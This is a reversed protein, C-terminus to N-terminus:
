RPPKAATRVGEPYGRGDASVLEAYFGWDSGANEIKLLLENWGKDLRLRVLEQAPKAGQRTFREFRLERNFWVKCADDAGLELMVRQRQESFIWCAAYAAAPKDTGCVELLNVFDAGSEHSTWRLAGSAGDGYVASIVVGDKEPPYARQYARHRPDFFPGLVQWARIFRPDTAIQARNFRYRVDRPVACEDMLAGVAAVPDPVSLAKQLDLAAGLFALARPHGPVQKLMARYWEMRRAPDPELPVIEEFFRTGARTAGLELVHKQAQALARRLDYPLHEVVPQKPTFAHSAYTEAPPLTHSKAGTKVPADVWECRTQEGGEPVGDDFLVYEKGATRIATRDWFVQGGEQGFSMTRIPLGSLPSFALPVRLETWTGPEPCPGMYLGTQLAAGWLRRSARGLSDYLNLRVMRPTHTKSLYVWQSLLAGGSAPAVHHTVPTTFGRAEQWEARWDHRPDGRFTHAKAGSHVPKDVWKWKDTVADRPLDDDIFVHAKGRSVIATQDWVTKNGGYQGFSVGRIPTAHANIAILPVRLEAWAGGAPLPGAYRRTRDSGGSFDRYSGWYVGYTWDRGDHLRIILTTAPKEANLCVWQSLYSGAHQEYRERVIKSVGAKAALALVRAAPDADHGRRLVDDLGTLLREAALGEPHQKLYALCLSDLHADGAHAHIQLTQWLFDSSSALLPLERILALGAQEQRRTMGHLYLRHYAATFPALGEMGGGWRLVPAQGGLPNDAWATLALRLFRWDDRKRDCLADLPLTIEHLLERARLDYTVAAVIGDPVAEGDLAHCAPRGRADLAFGLRRSRDNAALGVELWNGSGRWDLGRRETTAGVPCAVGLHLCADDASVLLRGPRGGAAPVRLVASDEWETLRGDAELAAAQRYALRADDTRDPGQAPSFAYVGNPGTLVLAGDAALAAETGLVQRYSGDRQRQVATWYPLLPLVQGGEHAASAKNFWDVRIRDPDKVEDEGRELGSVLLLSGAHEFSALVSTWRGDTWPPRYRRIREKKRLDYVDLRRGRADHHILQDGIIDAALARHRFEFSPDGHRFVWGEQKPQRGGTEYRVSLWEGCADFAKIEESKVKVPLRRLPRPAETKGPVFSYVTQDHGLYFGVREGIALRVPWGKAKEHLFPRAALIIGREPSLSVDVVREGHSPIRGYLHLQKGDFALARFDYKAYDPGFERFARYWILEGSAIGIGCAARRRNGESFRALVLVDGCLVWQRVDLPLETRWLVAGTKVDHALVCDAYVLLLKDAAWVRGQSGPPLCRAWLVGGEASANLKELIGDSYVYVSEPLGPGPPPSWLRPNPRPVHWAPQWSRGAAGATKGPRTQDVQRDAPPPPGASAVGILSTGRVVLPGNHEAQRAVTDLQRGNRLDVRTLRADGTLLLEDGALHPQGTLPYPLEKQWEVTGTEARLRTVTREDALLVSDTAPLGSMWRQPLFPEDWILRGTEAELAFVGSYDRPAFLVRNGTAVPGAGPKRLLREYDGGLWVRPYFRIWEVLGDRGDCRAALGASTQCYVAGDRVTLAGGFRVFDVHADELLGHRGNELAYNGAGLEVRWRLRGSRVDACALLLREAGSLETELLGLVYVREDAVVPDSVPIIADWDPKGVTSWLMAGDARRFAALGGLCRRRQDVGWRCLITDRYVAPRCPGPAVVRGNRSPAYKQDGAVIPPARFWQPASPDTGYCAVLDPATALVSDGAVALSVRPWPILSPLAAGDHLLTAPWARALPLHLVSPQYERLAAFGPPRAQDARATEILQKPTRRTDTISLGAGSGFAKLWEAWEARSRPTQVLALWLGARARDRLGDDATHALVDRFLRFATGAQGARLAHEGAQVLAEHVPQAWPHRRYAAFLPEFGTEPDITSLAQGVEERSLGRMAAVQPAPRAHLDRDIAAWISGYTAEGSPVLSGVADPDGIVEGLQAAVEQLPSSRLAEWRMELGLGRPLAPAPSDVTDPLAGMSRELGREEARGVSAKLENYGALLEDARGASKFLRLEERRWWFDRGTVSELEALAARAATHRGQRRYVEARERLAGALLPHSPSLRGARKLALARRAVYEHWEDPLDTRDAWEHLRELAQVAGAFDGPAEEIRRAQYWAARGYFKLGALLGAIEGCAKLRREQEGPFRSGLAELLAVQRLQLRRERENKDQVAAALQKEWAATNHLYTSEWGDKWEIKPPAAELWAPDLPPPTHIDASRAPVSLGLASLLVALFAHNM